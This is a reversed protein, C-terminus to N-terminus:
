MAISLVDTLMLNLSDITNNMTYTCDLVNNELDCLEFYFCKNGKYKDNMIFLKTDNNLNYSYSYGIRKGELKSLLMESIQNINIM